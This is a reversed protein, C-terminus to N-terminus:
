WSIWRSFLLLYVISPWVFLLVNNMKLDVSDFSSIFFFTTVVAARNLGHLSFRSLTSLLYNICLASGSEGQLICESLKAGPVSTSSDRFAAFSGVPTAFGRFWLWRLSSISYRAAAAAAAVLPSSARWGGIVSLSRPLSCVRSLNFSASPLRFVCVCTRDTPRDAEMLICWWNSSFIWSFFSSVHCVDWLSVFLISLQTMLTWFGVYTQQQAWQPTCDEDVSIRNIMMEMRNIKHIQNHTLKTSPSAGASQLPALPRSTLPPCIKKRRRWTSMCISATKQMLSIRRRTERAGGAGLEADVFWLSQNHLLHWTIVPGNCFITM